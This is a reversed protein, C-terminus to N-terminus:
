NPDKEDWQDDDDDTILGGRQKILRRQGDTLGIAERFDAGTLSLSFRGAIWRVRLKVPIKLDVELLRVTKDSSASALQKGDPSFVVSLVASTHGKFVKLPRYVIEAQALPEHGQEQDFGGGSAELPGTPGNGIAADWLRVTNDNGGYSGSASALHRGDPSFCSAISEEPYAGQLGQTRDGSNCMGCGCRITTEEMPAVPPPWIGATPRFCSAISEQIM